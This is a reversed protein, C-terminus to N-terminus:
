VKYCFTVNSIEYHRGPGVRTDLDTTQGNVHRISTPGGKVIVYFVSAGSADIAFGYAEGSGDAKLDVDTITVTFTGDTIVQGVSLKGSDYKM